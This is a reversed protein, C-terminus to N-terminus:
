RIATQPIRHPNSPQCTAPKFTAPKRLLPLRGTVSAIVAFHVFLNAPQLNSLQLNFSWRCVVLSRLLLGCLACLARLPQCTVPKFTAPQVVMPLRGTVSAIVAFHWLARLPQCTVPKFTAPKRLLPASLLTLYAGRV